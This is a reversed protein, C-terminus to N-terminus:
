CKNGKETDRSNSVKLSAEVIYVAVFAINISRFINKSAFFNDIFESAIAFGVNIMDLGILCYVTIYFAPHRTVKFLPQLKSDKDLDVPTKGISRKVVAKQFLHNVCYKLQKINCADFM